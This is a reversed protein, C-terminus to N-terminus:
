QSPPPTPGTSRTKYPAKGDFQHKKLMQKKKKSLVPEFPNEAARQDYDKIKQWLDLDHQIRPNLHTMGEERVIVFSNIDEPQTSEAHFLQVTSSVARDVTDSTIGASPAQTTQADLAAATVVVDAQVDVHEMHLHCDAAVPDATPTATVEVVPISEIPPVDQPDNTVLAM